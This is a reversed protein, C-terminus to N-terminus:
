RCARGGLAGREAQDLHFHDRHANNYDPSLVTAFLDCADDRVAHLFAANEGDGKWDRLVSVERGDALVFGAVDVADATAHESWAGSGRGYMRRCSYSGLHRIAVVKTGFYRQAAPQLGNWEWMVLAAAVPCSTGLGAPRFRIPSAGGPRIRVRDSYGCHEGKRAPMVAYDVGARTLLARCQDFDGTLAALRRGSFLGPKEALDLQGWPVDQPHHRFYGWGVVGAVFLM